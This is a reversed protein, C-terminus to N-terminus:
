YKSASIATCKGMQQLNIINHIVGPPIISFQLIFLEYIYCNIYDLVAIAYHNTWNLKTVLCCDKSVELQFYVLKSDISNM